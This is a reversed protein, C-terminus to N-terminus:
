SSPSIMIFRPSIYIKFCDIATMATLHKKTSTKLRKSFIL